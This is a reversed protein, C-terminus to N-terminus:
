KKDLFSVRVLVAKKSRVLIVVNKTLMPHFARPLLNSLNHVDDVLVVIPSNHATFPVLSIVKNTIRSQSHNRILESREASFLLM